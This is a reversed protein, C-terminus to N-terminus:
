GFPRSAIGEEANAVINRGFVQAVLVRHSPARKRAIIVDVFAQNSTARARCTRRSRGGRGRPERACAHATTSLPVTAM